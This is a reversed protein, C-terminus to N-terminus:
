GHGGCAAYRLGQRGGGGGSCTDGGGKGQEWAGATNVKWADVWDPTSVHTIRRGAPALSPDPRRRMSVVACLVALCGAVTGGALACV